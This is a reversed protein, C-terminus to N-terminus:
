NGKGIIRGFWAIGFGLLLLVIGLNMISSNRSMTLFAGLLIFVLGVLWMALGSSRAKNFCDKCLSRGAVGSFEELTKKQGCEDCKFTAEKVHYHVHKNIKKDIVVQTGCYMCHAKELDEPFELSAGCSPCIAPILNVM